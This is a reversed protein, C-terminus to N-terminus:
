CEEGGGQMRELPEWTGTPSMLATSEAWEWKAEMQEIHQLEGSLTSIEDAVNQQV